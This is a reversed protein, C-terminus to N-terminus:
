IWHLDIQQGQCWTQLVQSILSPGNGVRIRAPVGHRRVLITLLAM